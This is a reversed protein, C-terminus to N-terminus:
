WIEHYTPIFTSLILTWTVANLFSRRFITFRRFEDPLNRRTNPLHTFIYTEM